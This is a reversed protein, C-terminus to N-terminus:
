QKQNIGAALEKEKLIKLYLKNPNFTSENEFYINLFFRLM